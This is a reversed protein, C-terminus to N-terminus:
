CEPFVQDETCASSRAVRWVGRSAEGYAQLTVTRIVFSFGDFTLDSGVTPALILIVIDPEPPSRGKKLAAWCRRLLWRIHPNKM